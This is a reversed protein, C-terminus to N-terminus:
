ALNITKLAAKVATEVHTDNCGAPYLPFNDENLFDILKVVEINLATAIHGRIIGGEKNVFLANHEQGKSAQQHLLYQLQCPHVDQLNEYVNNLISLGKKLLEFQQAPYKM